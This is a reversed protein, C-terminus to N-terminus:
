YLMEYHRIVEKSKQLAEDIETELETIGKLKKLLDGKIRALSEKRGELGQLIDKPNKVTSVSTSILRNSLPVVFVVSLIGILILILLKSGGSNIQVLEKGAEAKCPKVPVSSRDLPSGIAPSTKKEHAKLSYHLAQLTDSMYERLTVITSSRIIGKVFPNRSWVLGTCTKLRTFERRQGNSYASPAATICYMVKAYFCDGYMVGPTRNEVCLVYRKGPDNKILRQTEYCDTEKVRVLPHNVPVSFYSKRWMKTETKTTDKGSYDGGGDDKEELTSWDTQSKMKYLRKKFVNKYVPGTLLQFILDVNGPILTDIEPQELHKECECSIEEEVMEVEEDGGKRTQAKFHHPIDDGRMIGEVTSKLAKMEMVGASDGDAGELVLSHHSKLFLFVNLINGMKGNRISIAKDIMGGLSDNHYTIVLQEEDTLSIQEIAAWSFKMSLRPSSSYESNSNSCLFVNKDSLIIAGIQPPPRESDEEMGQGEGLWLCQNKISLLLAEDISLNDKIWLSMQLKCHEPYNLPTITNSLFSTPLLLSSSNQKCEEIQSFWLMMENTSEFQFLLPKLTQLSPIKMEFCNRRDVNPNRPSVETFTCLSVSIKFTIEIQEPTSSPMQQILIGTDRELDWFVRKWSSSSSSSPNKKYFLYGKRVSQNFHSSRDNDEKKWSSLNTTANTKTIGDEAVAHMGGVFQQYKSGLQWSAQLGSLSMEGLSLETETIFSNMLNYYQLLIDIYEQKCESLNHADERILPEERYKSLNSFKSANQEYKDRSKLLIKKM